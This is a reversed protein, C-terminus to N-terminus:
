KFNEHKGARALRGDSLAAWFQLAAARELDVIHRGSQWFDLL